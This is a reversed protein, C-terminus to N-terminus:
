IQRNFSYVVDEAVLERGNVPAINHFKVGGRLKFIYTTDDPQEVSEILDPVPKYAPMELGELQLKMLRNYAMGLGQGFNISASTQHPDLHAWSSNGGSYVFTGGYKPQAAAPTAAAGAAPSAGSAPAPAVGAPVATPVAAPTSTCAAVGGLGLAALGM